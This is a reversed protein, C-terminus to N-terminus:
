GRARIARQSRGWKSYRKGAAKMRRAIEEGSDDLSIVGRYKATWDQVARTSCGFAEAVTKTRRHDTIIGAEAALVYAAGCKVDREADPGVRDGAGSICEAIPKPQIGRALYECQNGLGKAIPEPIVFGGRSSIDLLDAWAAFWARARESAGSAIREPDIMALQCRSVRGLAEEFDQQTPQNM